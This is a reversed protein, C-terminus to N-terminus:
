EINQVQERMKELENKCDVLLHATRADSIKSGITNVERFFEQVLFDLKRGVPEDLALFHNGQEVHSRLRVLEETVDMKDVLIAAEQALRVPDIDVGRLLNDLREKLAAARERQLEPISGGITEVLAAVGDLRQRLEKQLAEGESERMALCDALAETLARALPPWVAEQDPAGADSDLPAIVGALAAVLTLDLEGPLELEEKITQLCQRYERALALDLQLRGSQEGERTLNVYVEVHGRGHFEAVKKKIREELGVYLKPLKIRIDCFRHNVARVEVTWTRLGDGAQGRGYGTMSLPRKM